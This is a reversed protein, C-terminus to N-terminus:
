RSPAARGPPKHAKHKAIPQPPPQEMPTEASSETAIDADDGLFELLEDVVAARAQEVTYGPLLQGNISFRKQQAAPVPPSLETFLYAYADIRGQLYKEMAAKDTYRKRDQGALQMSQSTYDPNRPLNFSVWWSVEWSTPVMEKLHHDYHKNEYICYSMTYVMNSIESRDYEDKVWVNSTHAVVPTRVYELAKAIRLTNAAQREWEETATCLKKFIDQEQAASADKLKELESEPRAILDTIDAREQCFSVSHEIRIKDGPELRDAYTYVNYFDQETM